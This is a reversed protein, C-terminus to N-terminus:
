TPAVGVGWLLMKAMAADSSTNDYVFIVKKM